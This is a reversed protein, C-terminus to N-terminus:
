RADDDMAQSPGNWKVAPFSLDRAIRQALAWRVFHGAERLLQAEDSTMWRELDSQRCSALTLDQGALWDLLYVAARLHM